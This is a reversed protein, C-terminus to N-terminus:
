ARHGQKKREVILMKMYEALVWLSAAYSGEGPAMLAYTELITVPTLPEKHIREALYAREREALRPMKSHPIIQWDDLPHTM